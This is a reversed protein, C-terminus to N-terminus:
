KVNKTEQILTSIDNYKLRILEIYAADAASKNGTGEGGLSYSGNKIYFTFYFPKAPSGTDSIIVLTKNDSCSYVLWNTKGYVKKLPGTECKLAGQEALLSQCSFFSMLVIFATFAKKM